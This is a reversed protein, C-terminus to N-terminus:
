LGPNLPTICEGQRRDDYAAGSASGIFDIRRLFKSIVDDNQVYISAPLENNESSHVGAIPAASPREIRVLVGEMALVAAAENQYRCDDVVVRANEPLRDVAARWAKVWLDPHILDRGWETGITQMAYRPTRGGLLDCPSEKRAGEIEIETLGLAAMMAKLPGAFRVRTFGHRRVLHMAATSKGSGAPGCFAILTRPM